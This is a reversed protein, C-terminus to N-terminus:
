DGESGLPMEKLFHVTYHDWFCKGLLPWFLILCRIPGFHGLVHGFVGSITRKSWKQPIRSWEISLRGRAEMAM